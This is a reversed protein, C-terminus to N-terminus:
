TIRNKVKIYNMSYMYLAYLTALVAVAFLVSVIYHVYKIQVDIINLGITFLIAAYFCVTALKGYWNAQVVVQGKKYLTVAGIGLIAEKIVVVVIVVIPVLGNYTLVAIATAQVLKDAIPDLLTGLKSIMHYKRAIYGDLVDTVGILLFLMMANRYDKIFMLLGLAPVLM